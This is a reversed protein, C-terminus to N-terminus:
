KKEEILEQIGQSVDALGSIIKKIAAKVKESGGFFVSLQDYVKQAEEGDLDIIELGIEDITSIIAVAKGGHKVALVGGELWTIKGDSLKAERVDPVIVLLSEIAKQFNDIGVKQM